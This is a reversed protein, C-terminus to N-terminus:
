LGELLDVELKAKLFDTPGGFTLKDRLLMCLLGVLPGESVEVLARGDETTGVLDDCTVAGAGTVGGTMDDVVIKVVSTADCGAATREDGDCKFVGVAGFCNAVTSDDDVTREGVREVGDNSATTNAEALLISSVVNDAAARGLQNYIDFKGTSVECVFTILYTLLLNPMDIVAKLHTGSTLRFVSRLSSFKM